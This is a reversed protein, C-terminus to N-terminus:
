ALHGQWSYSRVTSGSQVPPVDARRKNSAVAAEARSHDLTQPPVPVSLSTGPLQDPLGEDHDELDAQCATVCTNGVQLHAGRYQALGLSVAFVASGSLTFATYAHFM